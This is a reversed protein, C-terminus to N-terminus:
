HPHPTKRALCVTRTGLVGCKPVGKRDVLLRWQPPTLRHQARMITEIGASGSVVGGVFIGAIIIALAMVNVSLRQFFGAFANKQAADALM